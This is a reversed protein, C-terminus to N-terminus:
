TICKVKPVNKFISNYLVYYVDLIKSNKLLLIKLFINIRSNNYNLILFSGSDPDFRLSPCEVRFNYDHNWKM